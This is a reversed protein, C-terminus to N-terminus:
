FNKQKNYNYWLRNLLELTCMAKQYFFENESIDDKDCFMM